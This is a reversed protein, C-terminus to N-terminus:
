AEIAMRRSRRVAAPTASRFAIPQRSAAAAACNNAAIVRSIETSSNSAPLGSGADRRASLRNKHSHTGGTSM